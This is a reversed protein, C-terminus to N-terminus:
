WLHLSQKLLLLSTPISPFYCCVTCVQITDDSPRLLTFSKLAKAWRGGYVFTRSLIARQHLLWVPLVSWSQGRTALSSRKWHLEAGVDWKAKHFIAAGEKVGLWPWPHTLLAERISVCLVVVGLPFVSVHTASYPLSFVSILAFNLFEKGGNENWVSHILWYLQKLKTDSKKTLSANM